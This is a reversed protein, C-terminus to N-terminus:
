FEDRKNEEYFDTDTDTRTDFCERTITFMAGNTRPMRRHVLEYPYKTLVAYGIM